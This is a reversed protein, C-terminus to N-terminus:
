RGLIMAKAAAFEEDTLHGQERLAALRELKELLHDTTASSAVGVKRAAVANVAPAFVTRLDNPMVKPIHLLAEGKRGSVRVVSNVTTRTTLSNLVSAAVMGELAGVVGFGGGFVGGGKTQKGGYFELSVLESYHVVVATTIPVTAIHLCEEGVAVTVSEGVSPSWGYGGVVTLDTLLPGVAGGRERLYEGLERCTGLADVGFHFIRRDTSRAARRGRGSWSFQWYKDCWPCCSETQGGPLIAMSDMGGCGTCVPFIIVRGCEACQARTDDAPLALATECYPCDVELEEPPEDDDLTAPLLHDGDDTTVPVL